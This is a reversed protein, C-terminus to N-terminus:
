ALGGSRAIARTLREIGLALKEEGYASFNLEELLRHADMEGPLTVWLFFGGEPRSWRVGGPFRAELAKLKADRRRRYAAVM